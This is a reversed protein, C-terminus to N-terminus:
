IRLSEVNVQRLGDKESSVKGYVRVLPLPVISGEIPGITANFDGSGGLSVLKIHCDTMGDFFKQESLVTMAGGPKADVSGRVISFWSVYQGVKKHINYEKLFSGTARAM